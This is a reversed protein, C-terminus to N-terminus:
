NLAQDKCITAIKTLQIDCTKSVSHFMHFVRLRESGGSSFLHLRESGVSFTHVDMVGVDCLMHHM